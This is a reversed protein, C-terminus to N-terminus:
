YHVTNHYYDVYHLCLLCFDLMIEHKSFDRVCGKHLYKIKRILNIKRVAEPLMYLEASNINHNKTRKGM